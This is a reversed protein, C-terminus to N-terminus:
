RRAKIQYMFLRWIATTDLEQRRITSFLRMFVKLFERMRGSLLLQPIWDVLVKLEIQPMPSKDLVALAQCYQTHALDRNGRKVELHGFGLYCLALGRLYPIDKCISIATNLLQEAETLRGCELYAESLHVANTATGEVEGWRQRITLGKELLPIAEKFQRQLVLCRGLSQYAVCALEEDGDHIEFTTLSEEYYRRAQKFNGKFMAVNGLQNLAFGKTQWHNHANSIHLSRTLAQTAETYNGQRLHFLGFQHLISAQEFSSVLPFEASNVLSECLELAKKGEGLNNKIICLQHVIKVKLTLDPFHKAIHALQPWWVSFQQWYGRPWVDPYLANALKVMAEDLLPNPDSFESVSLYNALLNLACEFLFDSANGAALRQLMQEGDCRYRELQYQQWNIEM